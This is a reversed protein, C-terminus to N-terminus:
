SAQRSVVVTVSAPASTGIREPAVPAPPSPPAPPAPPAATPTTPEPPKPPAPPAPPTPPSSIFISTFEPTKVNLAIVKHDRLVRLPVDTGAPQDRLARLADEPRSVTTGAVGTIVDGGKLGPLADDDAAIVLAGKDTGFYRGLEPNVPALNLGWWPMARRADREAQRRAREAVEKMRDSERMARQAEHKAREVDVRIKAQDIQAAQKQAQEVQIRLNKEFDKPLLPHEADGAILQPWSYAERRTAKLVLDPQRQGGRLYGIHVEDGEKLDGLQRRADALAKSANAEALAKGDIAVITDGDRLGARAAPGDPTVAAIRAGKADSTLVVGIMARDTEGVYRFAYTRPGVEGLEGSLKAMRRSLEQMQRRLDALEARTDTTAAAGPAADTEAAFVPQTALALAIVLLSPKM